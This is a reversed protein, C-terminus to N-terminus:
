FFFDFSLSILLAVNIEDMKTKTKTNTSSNSRSGFVLALQSHAVVRGLVRAHRKALGGDVHQQACRWTVVILAQKQSKSARTASVRRARACDVINGNVRQEGLKRQDAAARRDNRAFLEKAVEFYRKKTARERQTDSQWDIARQTGKARTSGGNTENVM